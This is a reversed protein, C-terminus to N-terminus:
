YTRVPLVLQIISEDQTNKLIFPKMDGNFFIAVDETGIARIADIAYKATFSIDLRPGEYTYSEIKETVSGIEQSKSTIEVKEKSLTLKVVNSRDVSLLSARDIASILVGALTEFRSEFSSPILKSTDPYLGNIIKSSIITGDLTFIIKRECVNIEVKTENEILRGVEILNKAPITVNFESNQKLNIKKTALRYSDTATFELINNNAKLNVGTLIPRAEKDSAAFTTQQIATKLDDSSLSVSSGDCNFDINPYDEVKFGNLNFNSNNDYIRILNTDILEIGIRESEIKRIIETIYRASLLISGEDIVTIINESGSDADIKTSITIEGDSALLTLGDKTLDFKIGSLAPIPSKSSIARSVITLGKLLHLRSIKLNLSM